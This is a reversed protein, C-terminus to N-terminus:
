EYEEYGKKKSFIYPYLNGHTSPPLKSDNSLVDTTCMSKGKCEGSNVVRGM